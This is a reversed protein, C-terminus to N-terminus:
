ACARSRAAPQRLPNHGFVSAASGLALSPPRRRVDARVNRRCLRRGRGRVRGDIRGAWEPLPAADDDIFAVLGSRAEAVGRNRARSLGPESEYFYRAGPLLEQVLTACPFDSGSDVVVVDVPDELVALAELCHALDAHRDHTCVVVSLLQEAM